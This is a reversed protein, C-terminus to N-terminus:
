LLILDDALKDFIYALELLCTWNAFCFKFSFQSASPDATKDFETSRNMCLHIGNQRGSALTSPQSTGTQEHRRERAMVTGPMNNTCTHVFHLVNLCVGLTLSQIQM